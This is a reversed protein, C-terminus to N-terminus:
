TGKVQQKLFQMLTRLSRKPRNDNGYKQLYDVRMKEPLKEVAYGFADVQLSAYQQAIYHISLLQIVRALARIFERMEYTNAEEFDPQRQIM